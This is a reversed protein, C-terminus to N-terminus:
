SSGVKELGEEVPLSGSHGGGSGQEGDDAVHVVVGGSERPGDTGRQGGPGARVDLHEDDVVARRVVGARDGVSEGDLVVAYADHV